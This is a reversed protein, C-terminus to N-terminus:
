AQVPNYNEESPRGFENSMNAIMREMESVKSFLDSAQAYISDRSQDHMERGYHPLMSDYYKDIADLQKSM